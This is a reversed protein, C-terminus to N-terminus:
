YMVTCRTFMGCGLGFGQMGRASVPRAHVAGRGAWGAVWGGNLALLLVYGCYASLVAPAETESWRVGYVLRLATYSFAPGFSVALLGLVGVAKTMVGLAAALQALTEASHGAPAEVAQQQQQQQQKGPEAPGAQRGSGGWASFAAFAAEELPQFLTRVALSGLNSVLGYVGQPLPPLSHLAVSSANRM